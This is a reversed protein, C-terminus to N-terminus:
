EDEDDEELDEKTIYKFCNLWIKIVKGIGTFLFASGVWVVFAIIIVCIVFVPNM